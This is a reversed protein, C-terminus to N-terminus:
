LMTRLIDKYTFLDDFEIKGILSNQYLGELLFESYIFIEEKGLKPFLSRTLKALGPFQNLCSEFKDATLTDSLDLTNGKAFWNIIPNYLSEDAIEDEQQKRKKNHYIPPFIASFENSIAKGIIKKAVTILGKQEGEHVLQIKGILAPVISYLDCIRAYSQKENTLISRKEINSYLAEAASISVRQSVGSTQDVFESKRSEFTIEEIIRYFLNPIIIKQSGTRNLWAEQLTIQQSDEISLPYHTMIQSDIRDKLPTIITGRNTYDEPNATFVLLLDLGLRVPLGRFQIDREELINLLAVQIRTNLDPLENIGFIGRNTRPILGFHIVEEDALTLKLNAAKIPDIDGLLDSVTVDPTALKENYRQEKNLWEIPTEDKLKNTIERCKKCLPNFPNDNIVCEKVIPIHDDLLNILQRMIKTKAQGRLGLLILDHRALIANQLYPIVTKEYGIIGPFPNKNEKLVAILNDRLEDKVSKVTYNAEKLQRLNIIELM